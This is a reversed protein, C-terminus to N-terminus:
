DAPRGVDRVRLVGKIARLVDLTDAPVGGDLDVITYAIDGRSKNLLDAINLGADGLATSIQGVMNPVNANAITIRHADIRPM